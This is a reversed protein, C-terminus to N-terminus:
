KLVKMVKIGSNTLIRALYLGSPLTSTDMSVKMVDDSSAKKNIVLEGKSNYLEISQISANSSEIQLLDQMPNPYATVKNALVFRNSTGSGDQTLKNGGDVVKTEKTPGPLDDCDCYAHGFFGGSFWEDQCSPSPDTPAGFDADPTDDCWPAYPYVSCSFMGLPGAYDCAPYTDWEEGNPTVLRYKVSVPVFPQLSNTEDCEASFDITPSQAIHSYAQVGNSLTVQNFTGVAVPDYTVGNITYEIYMPDYNSPIVGYDGLWWLGGLLINTQITLNNNGDLCFEIPIFIGDSDNSITGLTTMPVETTPTQAYSPFILAALIFCCSLKIFFSKMSLM